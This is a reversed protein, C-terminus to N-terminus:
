NASERERNKLGLALVALAGALIGIPVFAAQYGALTSGRSAAVGGVIAAGLLQGISMFVTLLGQASGRDQESAENLVIYRLPAGLLAALGFGAIIGASIFVTMTVTQLAYVFVGLSTLALGLVVIPRSGVLDLMRGSLPAGITLALVMPLLLLSANAESVALALVAIAPLFVSASECIGTGIAIAGTLRMQTSRLLAPLVIPDTARKEFRVLLPVALVGIVLFPAVQMTTLSALLNASDLNTIAIAMCSLLITLTVAGGYDFPQRTETTTTPLERLAQWILGAAIPLNILFLWHWSLRLLVGGLIPGIIFALGFVAGILGLARGRKEAPFTDGIVASAVPFIGGAGLAQIARGVLLVTFNPALVLVLSGAAFLAVDLVYIIRRGFRDSAKAMIPTGILNFLVYINFIWALSRSDLDFDAQIAPLAPGVIAIDLAAMLVGVFLVGLIKKQRGGNDTTDAM